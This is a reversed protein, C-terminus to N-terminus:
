ESHGTPREDLRQLREDLRRLREPTGVDCWDGEYLEAQLGDENHTFVEGLGFRTRVRPYESLTQPRLWSIGSFTYRPKATGSLLGNEIGFDGEPNHPPNPVMLLRGPCGEPLPRALWHSFDFDCWVDGNVVLFPTDDLLPLAKLIGGATELPETEVSYRIDLGWRAGEGLQDRIKEGLHSLNIVVRRVGANALRELTYEILPRGAVPLLPKPVQETLPRMRKGFGAALVMAAPIKNTNSM